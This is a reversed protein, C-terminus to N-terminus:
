GRKLLKIWKKKVLESSYNLSKNRANEGLTQLLEQNNLVEEVIILDNINAM